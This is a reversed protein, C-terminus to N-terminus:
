AVGDRPDSALQVTVRRVCVDGTIALDTADRFRQIGHPTPKLDFEFVRVELLLEGCLLAALRYALDLLHCLRRVPSQRKKSWARQDPANLESVVWADEDRTRLDDTDEIPHAIANEVPGKRKLFSSHQAVAKGKEGSSFASDIGWGGRQTKAEM